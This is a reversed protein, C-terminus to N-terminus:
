TWCPKLLNRQCKVTVKGWNEQFSQLFLATLGGSEATNLKLRDELLPTNKMM